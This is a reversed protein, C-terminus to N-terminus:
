PRPAKLALPAPAASHRPAGGERVQHEDATGAPLAPVPMPKQAPITSPLLTHIKFPNTALKSTCKLLSIWARLREFM